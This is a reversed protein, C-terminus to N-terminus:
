QLVSCWVAGCLLVNVGQFTPNTENNWLMTTNDYVGQLTATHQLTNCQSAVHHMTIFHTATHHLANCKTTTRIFNWVKFPQVKQKKIGLRPRKIMHMRTHTDCCCRVVVCQLVHHCTAVCQLVNCGVAVCQLLSCCV